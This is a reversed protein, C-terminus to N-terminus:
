NAKKMSQQLLIQHTVYEVLYERDELSIDLFRFAIKYGGYPLSDLKYRDITIADVCEARVKLKRGLIELTIIPFNKGKAIVVKDSKPLIIAFGGLSLDFVSKKFLNRNLEFSAYCTKLPVVREHKRREYFSYDTPLHIRIKKDVTITKLGSSFSVSLEPVYINLMRNGNIVKQLAPDNENKTVLEIEGYDKRFAVIKFECKDVVGGMSQWAFFSIKEQVAEVLMREFERGRKQEKM